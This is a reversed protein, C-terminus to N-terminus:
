SLKKCVIGSEGKVVLLCIGCLYFTSTSMGDKAIEGNVMM